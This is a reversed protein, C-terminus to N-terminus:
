AIMAITTIHQYRCAIINRNDYWSYFPVDLFPGATTVCLNGYWWPKTVCVCKKGAIFKLRDMIKTAEQMVVHAHSAILCPWM